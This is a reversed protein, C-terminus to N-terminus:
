YRDRGTVGGAGTPWRPARWQEEEEGNLKPGTAALAGGAVIFAIGALGGALAFRGLRNGDAGVMAWRQAALRLLLPFVELTPPETDPWYPWDPPLCLSLEQRDFRALGESSWLQWPNLALPRRRLFIDESPHLRCPLLVDRSRRREPPWHPHKPETM